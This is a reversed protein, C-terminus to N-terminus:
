ANWITKKKVKRNLISHFHQFQQYIIIKQQMQKQM